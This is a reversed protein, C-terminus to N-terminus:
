LLFMVAALFALFFHHSLFSPLKFSFFFWPIAFSDYIHCKAKTCHECPSPLYFCMLDTSLGLGLGQSVPLSLCFVWFHHLFGVSTHAICLNLSFILFINEAQKKIGALLM